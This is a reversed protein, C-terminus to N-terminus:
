FTVTSSGQSTGFYAGNIAVPTGPPGAAQVVSVISPAGAPTGHGTTCDYSFSGGSLSLGELDTIGSTLQVMYQTQLDLSQTPTFTASQGNSSVTGAVPVFTTLPILQMTGTAVTLPDINKSFIVTVVSNAPVGTANNAPNVTTVTARALDAGSGTTFSSTIPSTIVNGSM